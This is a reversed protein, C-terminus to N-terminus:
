NKSHLLKGRFIILSCRFFRSLRRVLDYPYMAGGYAAMQGISNSIYMGLPDVSSCSGHQDLLIHRASVQALKPNQHDSFNRFSVDHYFLNKLTKGVKM